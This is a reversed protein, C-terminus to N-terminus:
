GDHIVSKVSNNQHATASQILQHSEGSNQNKNSHDVHMEDQYISGKGYQTSLAHM